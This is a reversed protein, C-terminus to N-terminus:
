RAAPLAEFTMYQERDAFGLARYIAIAHYDPDAAIVLTAAGLREKAYRGAAFLLHSALGQRRHAPHTDVDQYRALGEGTGVIGLGAHMERGRFAGFWAAHGAECVSRRSAIRRQLYARHREADAPEDATLSLELAAGWDEDGQLPRLEADPAPKAPPSLDEAVLVTSLEAGLGLAALEALARPRAPSLDIGIAVHDALPFAARFRALAGEAEGPRPLERLILCNGWRFGPNQPTRVVVQDAGALVECGELERM